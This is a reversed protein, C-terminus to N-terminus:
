DIESLAILRLSMDLSRVKDLVESFFMHGPQLHEADAFHSAAVQPLGLLFLPRTPCRAPSKLSFKIRSDTKSKRIRM